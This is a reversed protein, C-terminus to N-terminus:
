SLPTLLGAQRTGKPSVADTYSVALRGKDKYM